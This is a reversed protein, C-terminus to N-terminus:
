HTVPTDYVVLLHFLFCKGMHALQLWMEGQVPWGEEKEYPKCVEQGHLLARILKPTHADDTDYSLVRELITDWGGPRKPKYEKIEEIRLEPSGMGVLMALDVWGKMELMRCKQEDTIWDLKLFVSWFMSANMCHMLFFEFIVQKKPNQAAGCFYANFNIMEANQKALTSPNVRWQSAVAAMESPANKLIGDRIGVGDTWSVSKVLKPTKLIEAYLDFLSKNSKTSSSETTALHEEVANLLDM